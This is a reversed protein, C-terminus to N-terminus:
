KLKESLFKEVAERNRIFIAEKEYKLSSLNGDNYFERITSEIEDLNFLQIASVLNNFNFSKHFINNKVFYREIWTGSSTICPKEFFVTERAASSSRGLMGYSKPDYPLFVLDCSNFISYYNKEELNEPLVMVSLSNFKLFEERDEEGLQFYFKFDKINNEENLVNLIKLILSRGKEERLLGPIFVEIVGDRKIKRCGLESLLPTQVFYSPENVCQHINSLEDNDYIFKVGSKKLKDTIYLDVGCLYKNKKWVSFMQAPIVDILTIVNARWIFSIIYLACKQSTSPTSLLFFSDSYKILIRMFKRCWWLVEFIFFLNSSIRNGIYRSLKEQFIIKGFLRIGFKSYITIGSFEVNDLIEQPEGALSVFSKYLGEHHGGNKGLSCDIFIYSM